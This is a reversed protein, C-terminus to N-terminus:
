WDGGIKLELFVLCYSIAFVVIINTKHQVMKKELPNAIENM